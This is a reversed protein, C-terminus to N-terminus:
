EERGTVMMKRKYFQNLLGISRGYTDPVHLETVMWKPLKDRIGKRKYRGDVLLIAAYDNIHRIARGISQNVAKMCLDEYYEKGVSPDRHKQELFNMKEKLECDSANAFPLGIMVVARAMDDGFNIGESMKGNVVCFIIAGHNGEASICKQYARLTSDVNSSERPELFVSKRGAISAMLGVRKWHNMVKEQYVYSPFFVVLGKPVTACLQAVLNGLEHMQSPLQRDSYTFSFPRGNPGKDMIMTLLNESPVVHGCSFLDVDSPRVALLDRIVGSIPQMTGGALVISRANKVISKFHIAPNLMIYKLYVAGDSTKQIRVRGDSDSNLLASLFTQVISLPSMHKSIDAGASEKAPSSGEPLAPAAKKEVFGHLKNCLNSRDLYKNLKIMNMDDIGVSSLFDNITFIQDYGNATGVGHAPRASSQLTSLYSNLCSLVTLIQNIYSLNKANLRREYRDRYRRLHERSAAIHGKALICSYLQNISDVVNHAEDLVVIHDKLDVGLSERTKKHLLMSYPMTVIDAGEVGERSGYYPCSRSRRGLTVLDEIDHVKSLALSAFSRHLEKDYYVCRKEKKSNKQLDICCDNLRTTQKARKKLTENICLNKRSGLSIVKVKSSFETKKLENIFQSIQSHTRSCFLIKVNAFDGQGSSVAREDPESNFEDDSDELGHLSISGGEGEDGSRYDAVVYEDGRGGEDAWDGGESGGPEGAGSPSASTGSGHVRQKVKDILKNTRLKAKNRKENIDNFAQEVQEKEFEKVWAPEDDGAGTKGSSARRKRKLVNRSGSSSFKSLYNRSSTFASETSWLTSDTKIGGYSKPGKGASESDVSGLASKERLVANRIKEQTFFEGRELLWHVAGCIISLSKGTGTPSEFIGIRSAELTNWLQRM